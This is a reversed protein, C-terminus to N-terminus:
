VPPLAELFDALCGLPKPARVNAPPPSTGTLIESPSITTVSGLSTAALFPSNCLILLSEAPPKADPVIALPGPVPVDSLM